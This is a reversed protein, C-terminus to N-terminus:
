DQWTWPRINNKLPHGVFGIGANRCNKSSVRSSEHVELGGVMAQSAEEGHKVGRSKNNCSWNFSLTDLFGQRLNICKFPKKVELYDLINAIVCLLPEASTDSLITDM